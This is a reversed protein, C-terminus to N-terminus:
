ADRPENEFIGPRDRFFALLTKNKLDDEIFPNDVSKYAKEAADDDDLNDRIAQLAAALAEAESHMGIESYAEIAAPLLYEGANTLATWGNFHYDDEIMFIPYALQYGKPLEPIAEGFVITMHLPLYGLAEFFLDDDEIKWFEIPIDQGPYFDIMYQRLRELVPHISEPIKSNTM